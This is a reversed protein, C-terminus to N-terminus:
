EVVNIKGLPYRHRGDGNDLPMEIRPKGDPRGVSVYVAYTGPEPSAFEPIRFTSVHDTTPINDKPGVKLNRMNLSLDTFSTVIEDEQNKLTFTMYGGPYCPAVGGNAWTARVKFPQGIRVTKPWDMYRPHIRYGLRQNVKRIAKREKKLLEHPYYHISMSSAHYEEVATALSNPDQWDSSGYQGFELIVPRDPWFKQAQKEKHWSYDSKVMISHDTLTFGKKRAYEGLPWPGDSNTPGDVDDNITLLTNPFHKRWLDIHTKVAKKHKGYGGSFKTHGEGWLGYSSMDLFEVNPNNGYVRSMDNLLDDLHKLFVPDLYDPAWRRTNSGPFTYWKGDAGAKKVWKPTAHTLWSETNTVSLAIRKGEDIWRQAPTNFVQFNYKDQEPEVYQWALRLYITALGPFEDITDSPSLGHIHSGFNDPGHSYFYFRWGMHPNVLAEGNDEPKVVVRDQQAVPRTVSGLVLILTILLLTASSLSCARNLSSQPTMSSTINPRIM